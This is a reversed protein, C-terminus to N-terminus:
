DVTGNDNQRREKLEKLWNALQIYQMGCEKTDCNASLRKGAEEAHAIAEDLTLEM